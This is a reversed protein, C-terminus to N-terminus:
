GDRAVAALIEPARKELRPAILITAIQYLAIGYLLALPAAFLYWQRHELLAPALLLIFVPLLTFLTVWLAM